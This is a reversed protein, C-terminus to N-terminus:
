AVVRLSPEYLRATHAQAARASEQALVRARYAGFGVVGQWRWADVRVCGAPAVQVLEIKTIAM